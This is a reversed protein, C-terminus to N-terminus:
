FKIFGGFKNMAAYMFFTFLCPASHARTKVHEYTFKWNLKRKVKKKKKVRTENQRVCSGRCRHSLNFNAGNRYRFGHIFASNLLVYINIVEFQSFFLNFKDIGKISAFSNDAIGFRFTM